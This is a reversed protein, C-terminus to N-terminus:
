TLNICKKDYLIAIQMKLCFKGHLIILPCKLKNRFLMVRTFLNCINEIVYIMVSSCDQNLNQTNEQVVSKQNVKINFLNKNFYSYHRCM